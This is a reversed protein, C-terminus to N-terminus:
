IELTEDPALQGMVREVRKVLEEPDYGARKLSDYLMIGQDHLQNRAQRNRYLSVAQIRVSNSLADLESPSNGM